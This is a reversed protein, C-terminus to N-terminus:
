VKGVVVTKVVIQLMVTGEAMLVSHWVLLM